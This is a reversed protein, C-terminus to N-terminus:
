RTPHQQARAELCVKRRGPAGCQAQIGKFVKLLTDLADRSYKEHGEHSTADAPSNMKFGPEYVRMHSRVFTELLAAHHPSPTVVVLPAFELRAQANVAFAASARLCRIIQPRPQRNPKVIETKGVKPWHDYVWLHM